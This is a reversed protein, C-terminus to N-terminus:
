QNKFRPNFVWMGTANLKVREAGALPHGDLTFYPGEVPNYRARRWGRDWLRLRESNKSETKQSEASYYYDGMFVLSGTAYAHVYKKGERLTRQRTAESVEFTVDQLVVKQFGGRKSMVRNRKKHKVSYGTGKKNHLNRYAKVIEGYDQSNCM